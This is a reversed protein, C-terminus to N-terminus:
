KMKVVKNQVLCEDRRYLTVLFVCGVGKNLVISLPVTEDSSEPGIEIDPRIVVYINKIFCSALVTDKSFIPSIIFSNQGSNHCQAHGIM